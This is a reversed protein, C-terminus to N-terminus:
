AVTVAGTAIQGDRIVITRPLSRALDQDHTVILVSAGAQAAVGLLAAMTDKGTRTDRAGTPEHAFIIKPRHSLARAIAM